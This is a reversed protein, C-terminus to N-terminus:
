LVLSIVVSSLICFVGIFWIQAGVNYRKELPLRDELGYNLITKARALREKNGGFFLETGRNTIMQSFVVIAGLLMLGIGLLFTTNSFALTSYAKLIALVLAVLGTLVLGPLVIKLLLIRSAKVLFERVKEMDEGALRCRGGVPKKEVAFSIGSM